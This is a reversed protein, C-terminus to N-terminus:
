GSAADKKLRQKLFDTTRKWAVQAEASNYTPRSYSLFGHDVKEYLFVEVPTKQARLTKELALSKTHAVARDGTGHHIQV